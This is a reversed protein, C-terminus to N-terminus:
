VPVKGTLGMKKLLLEIEEYSKDVSDYGADEDTSYHASMPMTHAKFYHAAAIGVVDLKPSMLAYAIAIQDEAENKADTSIIVRIRKEAPVEFAFSKM